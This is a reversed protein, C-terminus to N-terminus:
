PHGERRPYRQRLGAVSETVRLGRSRLLLLQEARCGYSSASLDFLDVGNMKEQSSPARLIPVVGRGKRFPRTGGPRRRVLVLDVNRKPSGALITAVRGQKADCCCSEQVTRLCTAPRSEAPASDRNLEARFHIKASDLGSTHGVGTRSRVAVRTKGCAPPGSRSRDRSRVPRRSLRRACRPSLYKDSGRIM